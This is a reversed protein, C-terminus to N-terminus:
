PNWRYSKSNPLKKDTVFEALSILSEFDKVVVAKIWNSCVAFPQVSM